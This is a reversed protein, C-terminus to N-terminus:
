RESLKSSLAAVKYTVTFNMGALLIGSVMKANTQTCSITKSQFSAPNSGIHRIYPVLEVSLVPGSEEDTTPSM